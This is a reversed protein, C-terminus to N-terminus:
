ASRPQKAARFFPSLSELLMRGEPTLNYATRLPKESIHRTIFGEEELLKLKEGFVKPTIGSIPAFLANYGLPGHAYLLNLIVVAWKRGITNLLEEYPCSCLTAEVPELCCERNM